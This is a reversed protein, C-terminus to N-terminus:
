SWDLGVCIFKNPELRVWCKYGKSKFFRVVDELLSNGLNMCSIDFREYMETRGKLATRYALPLIINTCLYEIKFNNNSSLEKLDYMNNKPLM